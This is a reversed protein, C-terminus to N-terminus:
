EKKNGHIIWDGSIEKNAKIRDALEFVVVSGKFDPYIKEIIQVLIKYPIYGRAKKYIENAKTFLKDTVVKEAREEIVDVDGVLVEDLHKDKKKEYELLLKKSIFNLPHPITVYGLTLLKNTKYALFALQNPKDIYMTEFVYMSSTYEPKLTPSCYLMHISRKRLQEKITQIMINIRNSDIGFGRSQEDVLICTHPKLKKRENVLREIDFYINNVTLKPDLVGAIALASYSKSSGQEGCFTAIYSHETKKNRREELTDFLIETYNETLANGFTSDSAELLMLKDQTEKPLNKLNIM